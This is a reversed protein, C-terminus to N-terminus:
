GIRKFNLEGLNVVSFSLTDETLEYPSEEGNEWTLKKGDDKYKGSEATAAETMQDAVMKAYDELSMGLAQAILDDSVEMGVQQIIADRMYRVVADVFHDMDKGLDYKLSYTGDENLELTITWVFSDLYKGFSFDVDVSVDMEEVLRDRMDLEAKWIGSLMNKKEVTEYFEAISIAHDKGSSIFLEEAYSIPM